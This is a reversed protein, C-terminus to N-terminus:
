QGEGGSRKDLYPRLFTVLRGYTAVRELTVGLLRSAQRQTDPPVSVESRRLLDLVALAEARSGLPEGRVGRAQWWPEKGRVLRGVIAVVLSRQNFGDSVPMAGGARADPAAADAVERAAKQERDREIADLVRASRREAKHRTEKQVGM